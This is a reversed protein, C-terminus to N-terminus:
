VGIAYSVLTLTVLGFAIVGLLVESSIKTKYGTSALLLIQVPVSIIQLAPIAIVLYAIAGGSAGESILSPTISSFYASNTFLMYTRTLVNAGNAAVDNIVTSIYPVGIDTANYISYNAFVTMIYILVISLLVTTNDVESPDFLDKEVQYQENLIISNLILACIIFLVFSYLSIYITVLFSIILVISLTLPIQSYRSFKKRVNMDNLYLLILSMVPLYVLLQSSSMNSSALFGVLGTIGIIGLIKFEVTIDKELNRVFFGSLYLMLMFIPIIIAVLLSSTHLLDVSPVTAEVLKINEIPYTFIANTFLVSNIVIYSIFKDVKFLRVIAILMLFDIILSGSSLLIGLLYLALTLTEFRFFFSRLILNYDKLFVTDEFKLILYLIISITILELGMEIINTQTILMNLENLPIGYGFIFYAISTFSFIYLANRTNNTVLLYILTSIILLMGFIFM